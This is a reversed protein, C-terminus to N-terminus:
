KKAKRKARAKGKKILRAGGKKGYKKWMIAAAVARPNRAGGLKAVKVLAKFRKGGGPPSTKRAREYAKRARRRAALGKDGKKRAM